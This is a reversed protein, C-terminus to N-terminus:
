PKEMLGAMDVWARWAEAFRKKCDEYDKGDGSMPIGAPHNDSPFRVIWRWPAGRHETQQAIVGIRAKGSYVQFLPTVALKDRKIILPM